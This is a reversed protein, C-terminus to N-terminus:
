DFNLIQSSDLFLFNLVFGWVFYELKSISFHLDRAVEPGYIKIQTLSMLM